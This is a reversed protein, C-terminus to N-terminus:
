LQGLNLQHPVRPRQCVGAESPLGHQRRAAGDGASPGSWANTRSARSRGARCLETPQESEM